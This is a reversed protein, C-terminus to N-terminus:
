LGVEAGLVLRARAGTRDWGDAVVVEECDRRVVSLLVGDRERDGLCVVPREGGADALRATDGRWAYPRSLWDVGGRDEVGVCEVDRRWVVLLVAGDRATFASAAVAAMMVVPIVVAAVAVEDAALAAGAVALM